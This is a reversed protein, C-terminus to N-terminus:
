RFIAVYVEAPDYRAAANGEFTYFDVYGTQLGTYTNAKGGWNQEQLNAMFAYNTDPM